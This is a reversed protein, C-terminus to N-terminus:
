LDLDLDDDEANGKSISPEKRPHRITRGPMSEAPSLAENAEHPASFELLEEALSDIVDYDAREDHHEFVTHAAQMVDDSPTSREQKSESRMQFALKFAGADMEPSRSVEPIEVNKESFKEMWDGVKEPEQHRSAILESWESDKRQRYVVARHLVVAGVMTVIISILIQNWDNWFSQASDVFEDWASEGEINEPPWYETLIEYETRNTFIISPELTSRIEVTITATRNLEQDIPLQMWARFTVTANPAIDHVIFHNATWEGIEWDSSFPPILGYEAFINTSLTVDLGDDANGINRLTYTLTINDMDDMTIYESQIEWNILTAVEITTSATSMEIGDGTMLRLTPSLEFGAPLGNEVIYIIGVDTSMGPELNFVTRAVQLELSDPLEWEIEYDDLYNGTNQIRFESTCLDGADMLACDNDLFHITASRERLISVEVMTTSIQQSAGSSWTSFEVWMTGTPINPANFELQVTGTQYPGVDLLNYLEWIEVSWGNLVFSIAPEYGPIPVGEASVPRVRVGMSKEENGINRVTVPIRVETGPDLTSNEPQSVLEVGNWPLVEVTFTWTTSNGDHQSTASVTFSHKSGALPQGMSIEPVSIAFQIWHQSDSYMELTYGNAPNGDGYNWSVDWGTDTHIRIDAVDSFSANNTLNVIFGSGGGPEILVNTGDSSGFWLNSGNTQNGPSSGNDGGNTSQADDSNFAWDFATNILSGEPFIPAHGENLLKWHAIRNGQTCNLHEQHQTENSETGVLDLTRVLTSFEDCGSREAWFAAGGPSSAYSEGYFEGGNYDVTSDVTGHANIINPYGTLNCQSFDGYTSGAFNVITHIKNGADCAMRHSMFGGNSHGILMVREPDAGWHNVATDILSSLYSVDDINQNYFDCCAPPGNWFYKGEPNETGTPTLLLHRNETVSAPGQFYGYVYGPSDSFGHLAIVLPLLEDETQDAPFRLEAQRSFPGIMVTENQWPYNYGLSRDFIVSDAAWQLQLRDNEDLGFQDPLGVSSIGTITSHMVCAALYTGLTSPHSGDSSYLNYFLTGQDTPTGGEAVIQDYIAKYALGVPALYPTRNATTINEAYMNYGSELNAQMTLYDPNLWANNSDGDRYGWTMFFITEAGASEIMSDLRIAGNKSNQWMSETTPFSPVQSQDQLIVFEYQNTTLATNWQNGSSEANDAHQYLKMGGGTLDSVSASTGSADFLAQVRSSLSNQSTYSNGLMLVDYTGDEAAERTPRAEELSMTVPAWSMLLLPLVLLLARGRMAMPDIRGSYDTPTAQAYLSERVRCSQTRFSANWLM